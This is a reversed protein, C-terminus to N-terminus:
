RHLKQLAVDDHIAIKTRSRVIHFANYVPHFFRYVFSRVCLFPVSRQSLKVPLTRPLARDNKLLKKMEKKYGAMVIMIEGRRDEAFKNIVGLAEKGYQSGDLQHAEDILLVQGLAGNLVENTKIRTQGEYGGILGTAEVEVFGSLVGIKSLFEGFKRCMTTKGTGPDGVALMHSLTSKNAADGKGLESLKANRLVMAAKKLIAEKADKMGVTEEFEAKLANYADQAAQKSPPTPPQPSSKGRGGGKQGRRGNGQKGPTHTPDANAITKPSTKGRGGQRVRLSRREAGGAQYAVAPEDDAGGGQWVRSFRILSLCIPAIRECTPALRAYRHMWCWAGSIRAEARSFEIAGQGM